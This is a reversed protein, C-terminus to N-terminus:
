YTCEGCIGTESLYAPSEKCVCLTVDEGDSNEIEKMWPCNCCEHVTEDDGAAQASKVTRTFYCVHEEQSKVNGATINMQERQQKVDWVADEEIKNRRQDCLRYLLSSSSTREGAKVVTNGLVRKRMESMYDIDM